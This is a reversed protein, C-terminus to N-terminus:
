SAIFARRQGEKDIEHVVFSCAFIEFSSTKVLLFNSSIMDINDLLEMNIAMSVSFTITM